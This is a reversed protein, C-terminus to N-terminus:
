CKYGLSMHHKIINSLNNENSVLNFVEEETLKVPCLNESAVEEIKKILEQVKNCNGIVRDYLSKAYAVRNPATNPNHNIIADQVARSNDEIQGALNVIKNTYGNDPAKHNYKSCMNQIEHAFNGMYKSLKKNVSIFDIYTIQEKFKFNDFNDINPFFENEIDKIIVEINEPEIKFNSFNDKSELLIAQNVLDDIEKILCLEYKLSKKIRDILEKPVNNMMTEALGENILKSLCAAPRSSNRLLPKIDWCNELHASIERMIGEIQGSLNDIIQIEPLDIRAYGATINRIEHGCRGATKALSRINELNLYSYYYM